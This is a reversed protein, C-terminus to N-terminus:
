IRQARYLVKLCNQQLSSQARTHTHTHTHTHTYIHTYIHIHTHTSLCESMPTKRSSASSGMGFIEAEDVGFEPADEFDDGESDSVMHIDTCQSVCPCSLLCKIVRLESLDFLHVCSLMGTHTHKYSGNKCALIDSPVLHEM